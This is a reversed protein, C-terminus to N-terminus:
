LEKDRKLDLKDKKKLPLLIITHKYLTGIGEADSKYSSRKKLKYCLQNDVGEDMIMDIKDKPFYFKTIIDKYITDNLFKSSPDNILALINFDKRGELYSAFKYMEDMDNQVRHIILVEDSWKDYTISDINRLQLLQEDSFPIQNKLHDLANKRM